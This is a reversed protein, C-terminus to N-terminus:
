AIETVSNREGFMVNCTDGSFGITKTKDIEEHDLLSILSEMSGTSSVIRTGFLDLREVNYKRDWYVLVVAM